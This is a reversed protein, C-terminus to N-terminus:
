YQHFPRPWVCLNTQSFSPVPTLFSGNWKVSMYQAPWPVPISAPGIRVITLKKYWPSFAITGLKETLCENLHQQSTIKHIRNFEMVLKLFIIRSLRHPGSEILQFAKRASSFNGSSSMRGTSQLKLKNGLTHTCTFIYTTYIYTHIRVYVCVCIRRRSTRQHFGSQHLAYAHLLLYADSVSCWQQGLGESRREWRTRVCDGQCYRSSCEKRM